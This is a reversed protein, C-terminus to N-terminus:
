GNLTFLLDWDAPNGLVQEQEILQHQKKRRVIDEELEYFTGLLNPAKENTTLIFRLDNETLCTIQKAIELGSPDYDVWGYVPMGEKALQQIFQKHPRKLHGDTCIVFGNRERIWGTLAMKVLPSRNETLILFDGSAKWSSSNGLQLHTLCGLPEAKVQRDDIYLSGAFYIPIIQGLSIFGIEELSYASQEQLQELLWDKHSDYVKSGGIRTFGKSGIEKWDFLTQGSGHMQLLHILFQFFLKEKTRMRANIQSPVEQQKEAIRLLDDYVPSLGTHKALQNWEEFWHQNWHDLAEKESHKQSELWTLGEPGITLFKGTITRSDKAYELWEAFFRADMAKEVLQPTDVLSEVPILPRKRKDWKNLLHFIAEKEQKSFTSPSQHSKIRLAAKLRKSRMLEQYVQFYIYGDTEVPKAYDHGARLLHSPPFPITTPVHPM